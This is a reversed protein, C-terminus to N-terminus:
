TPRSACLTAAYIAQIPPTVAKQNGRNDKATGEEKLYYERNDNAFVEVFM